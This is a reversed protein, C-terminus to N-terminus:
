SQKRKFGFFEKMVANKDTELLSWDSVRASNKAAEEKALVLCKAKEKEDDFTSKLGNDMSLKHDGKRLKYMNDAFTHIFNELFEEKTMEVM